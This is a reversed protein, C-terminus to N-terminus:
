WVCRIVQWGSSFGFMLYLNSFACPPSCSETRVELYSSNQRAQVWKLRHPLPPPTGVDKRHFRVLPGAVLLATRGMVLLLVTFYLKSSSPCCPVSPPNAPSHPFCLRALPSPPLSPSSLFRSTLSDRALSLPLAIPLTLSRPQTFLARLLLLM